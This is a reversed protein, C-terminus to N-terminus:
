KKGHKGEEFIIKVIELPLKSNKFTQHVINPIKYHAMISKNVPISDNM